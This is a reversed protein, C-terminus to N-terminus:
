ANSMVLAVGNALRTWEESEIRLQQRGARTIEYYRAQRNNATVGWYSRIWGERTMENTAAFGWSGNVLTRVGVGYSENDAVGSVSRDRTNINQRRYRGVRADAYSAGADKAANIAELALENALPDGQAPLIEPESAIALGSRSAATTALAAASITLFDRRTTM